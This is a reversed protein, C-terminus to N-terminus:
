LQEKERKWLSLVAIAQETCPSMQMKTATYISSTSSENANLKTSERILWSNQQNGLSGCISSVVNEWKKRRM